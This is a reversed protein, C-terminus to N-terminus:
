VRTSYEEKKFVPASRYKGGLLYRLAGNYKKDVNRMFIYNMTKNTDHM